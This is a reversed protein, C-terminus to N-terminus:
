WMPNEFCEMLELSVLFWKHDLHKILILGLSPVMVRGGPNYFNVSRPGLPGGAGAGEEGHPLTFYVAIGPLEVRM